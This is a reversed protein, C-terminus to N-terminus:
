SNMKMMEAMKIRIEFDTGHSSAVRERPYQSVASLRARFVINKGHSSLITELLAENLSEGPRLRSNRWLLQPFLIGSLASKDMFM